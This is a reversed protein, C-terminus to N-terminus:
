NITDSGQLLSESEEVLLDVIDYGRGEAVAKRNKLLSLSYLKDYAATSLDMGPYSILMLMNAVLLPWTMLQLTILRFRMSWQEPVIYCIQYLDPVVFTFGGQLTFISLNVFMSLLMTYVKCLYLLSIDAYEPESGALLHAVYYFSGKWFRRCFAEGKRQGQTKVFPFHYVRMLLFAFLSSPVLTDVLFVFGNTPSDMMTSDWVVFGRFKMLCMFCLLTCAYFACVGVMSSVFAKRDMYMGPSPRVILWLDAFTFRHIIYFIVVVLGMCLAGTLSMNRIQQEQLIQLRAKQYISQVELVSDRYEKITADNFTKTLIPNAEVTKLKGVVELYQRTFYQQQKFLDKYYVLLKPENALLLVDDIYVGQSTRPIPIGLLACVTPAIDTTM